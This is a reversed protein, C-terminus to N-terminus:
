HNKSSPAALANYVLHIKYSSNQGSVDNGVMSRYSLGFTKRKQLGLSLGKGDNSFGDFELFEDPYTFANLTAQFEELNSYSIFKVGDIYFSNADGGSPTENISILGNWPVGLTDSIYLVGRDIGSEYFREGPLDWEIKSMDVEAELNHVACPM